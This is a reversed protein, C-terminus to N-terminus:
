RLANLTQPEALAKGGEAIEGIVQVAISRERPGELEILMIAQWEGRVLRSEVVGMSKSPGLMIGLIHSTPHPPGDTIADTGDKPHDAPHVHKFNLYPVLGNLFALLDDDVSQVVEGISIACTSHLASIMAIGNVCGSEAIIAEVQATIDIIERRKTSQIKFTRM